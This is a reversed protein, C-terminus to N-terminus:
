RFEVAGKLYSPDNNIMMEYAEGFNELTFRHTILAGEPLYGKEYAEVAEEMLGQVNPDFGPHVFHLEPCRCMLEFGLQTPWMEHKDYVSSAVIVGRDDAEPMKMLHSALLLGDLGKSLEIVRDFGKGGTLEIAEAVANEDKPDFVKTAGLKLSAERRAASPEFVAIVEVGYAKLLSLCVQGMYGAGVLAIRNAKGKRTARVINCCCMVPEALVEFESVSDPLKTLPAFESNIIYDAFAGGGCGSVRDGVAFRTVESGVKEVVGTPEHGFAAPYPVYDTIRSFGLPGRMEMAGEGLYTPMESRCIGALTMRILIEHPGPDRLEDERVEITSAATMYAVKRKM